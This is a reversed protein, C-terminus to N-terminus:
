GVRDDRLPAAFRDTYTLGVSEILARITDPPAQTVMSALSLM